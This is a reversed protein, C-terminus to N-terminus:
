NNMRLIFSVGRRLVSDIQRIQCQFFHTVSAHHLLNQAPSPATPITATSGHSSRFVLVVLSVRVAQRGIQLECASSSLVQVKAPELHRLTAQCLHLTLGNETGQVCGPEIASIM